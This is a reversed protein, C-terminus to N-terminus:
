MIIKMGDFAVDVGAPSRDLLTQYDVEASLDTLIARRPSFRRLLEFTEDVCLHSSHRTYRLADVIWIDLGRLSSNAKLRYAKSTRSHCHRRHPFGSLRDRRAGPPVAPSRNRGPVTSGFRFALCFAISTSCRSMFAAPRRKSFTSSARVCSKSTAEDMYINIRRRWKQVLPRVDDIGHVHDAHSHTILIADLRDIGADLCQERLDPSMDILIMTKAGDEAIQEVLVSCRRRRNKENRADCAGWGQGVRPVGASSGCGLITM